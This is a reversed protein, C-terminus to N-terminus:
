DANTEKIEKILPDIIKNKIDNADNIDILPIAMFSQYILGGYEEQEEPDINSRSFTGDPDYKDDLSAWVWEIDKHNQATQKDAFQFIGCTVWPETFLDSKEGLDLLVGLFLVMGGHKEINTYFRYIEHPMWENPMSIHNKIDICRNGTNSEWGEALLSDEATRILSSVQGLFERMDSIARLISSGVAEAMM